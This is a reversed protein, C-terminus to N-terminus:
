DGGAAIALWLAYRTGFLGIQLGGTEVSQMNHVPDYVENQKFHIGNLQCFGLIYIKILALM